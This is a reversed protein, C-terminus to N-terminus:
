SQSAEGEPRIAALLRVTKDAIVGHLIALEGATQSKLWDTDRFFRVQEVLTQINAQIMEDIATSLDIPDSKKRRTRKKKQHGNKPVGQEKWRGVTSRPIGHKEAIAKVSGGSVLDALVAARTEDTYAM